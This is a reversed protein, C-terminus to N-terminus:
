KMANQPSGVALPDLKLEFRMAAGAGTRGVLGKQELPGMEKDLADLRINLRQGLMKRTLLRDRRLERLAAIQKQTFKKKEAEEADPGGDRVRIKPGFAYGKDRNTIIDSGGCELHQKEKLIRQAAERIQRVADAAAKQGNDHIGLAHKGIYNGDYAKRDATLTKHKLLDLVKRTQTSNAPGSLKHGSLEVRDPYFDLFVERLPQCPRDSKTVPDSKEACADRAPHKELATRIKKELPHKEGFPKGVFDEAGEKLLEVALHYSDIDNATMVVVPTLSHGLEGKIKHLLNRGYERDPRGKYAVPIALDLLIYDYATKLLHEEAETQCCAVDHSHGM